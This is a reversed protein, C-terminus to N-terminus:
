LIGGFDFDVSSATAIALRRDLDDEGAFAMPNGCVFLIVLGGPCFYNHLCADAAEDQDFGGV